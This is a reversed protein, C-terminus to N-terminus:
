QIAAVLAQGLDDAAKPTATPKPANWDDGSRAAALLEARQAAREDRMSDIVMAPRLMARMAEIAQAKGSDPVLDLDLKAMKPMEKRTAPWEIELLVMAPHAVTGVPVIAGLYQATRKTWRVMAASHTERLGWWLHGLFTVAEPGAPVIYYSDRVWMRPITNLYVTSEITAGELRTEDDISKLDDTLDVWTGNERTVGQENRPPVVVAAVAVPDRVPTVESEEEAFPDGAPEEPEIATPDAEPHLRRITAAVEDVIRRTEHKAESATSSAKVFAVDARAAGVIIQTHVNIERGGGVLQPSRRSTRPLGSRAPRLTSNHHHFDPYREM